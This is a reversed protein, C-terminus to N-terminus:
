GTAISVALYGIPHDVDVFEGNAPAGQDRVEVSPIGLSTEDDFAAKLSGGMVNVFEGFADVADELEPAGDPVLGYGVALRAGLSAEAFITAEAEPGNLFAVKGMLWTGPAISSSRELLEPMTESLADLVELALGEVEEPDISLDGISSLSETDTM